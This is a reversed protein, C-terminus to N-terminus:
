ESFIEIARQLRRKIRTKSNSASGSYAKFDEDEKLMQIKEELLNLDDRYRDINQAVGITIGEFFAPVFRNRRSRFVKDHSNPLSYLIELTDLFIKEMKEYDYNEDKVTEEMFKNLYIETNENVLEVRDFFALFRLVLEQDYLEEKQKPSLTTLSQFSNILSLRLLLENLRSDIGRYIANRIEQPTLKSGGSNLRKFLEYKMETKSQGRLIEVRCVSRKLNIKFSVPLNDINFGELNELISGSQLVWRNGNIQPNETNEEETELLDEQVPVEGDFFEESQNAISSFNEKLEGFFSIFTSIRQLGDIVEWIGQEDEAVFIPPIPISLLLSEILATKQVDNWRYLRQYEPRIILEESKYMNIIEGFSIDMRDASLRKREIDVEEELEKKKQEFNLM